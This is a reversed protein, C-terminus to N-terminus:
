KQNVIQVKIPDTERSYVDHVLCATPIVLILASWFASRTAHFIQDGRYVTLLRNRTAAQAYSFCLGKKIESDPDYKKTVLPDSVYTVWASHDAAVEVASKVNAYEFKPVISLSVFILADLFFYAAVLMGVLFLIDRYDHSSFRVIYNSLLASFGGGLLLLLGSIFSTRERLRVLREIERDYEEKLYEYIFDSNTEAM